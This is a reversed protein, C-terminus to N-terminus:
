ANNALNNNESEQGYVNLKSLFDLATRYHQFAEEAEFSSIVQLSLEPYPILDEESIKNPLKDEDPFGLPEAYSPSSHLVSNRYKFLKDVRAILAKDNKLEPCFECAFAIKQRVSIRSYKTILIGFFRRIEENKIFLIPASIFLNLGAEIAAASFVSAVLAHNCKAEWFTNKKSRSRKIYGLHRRAIGLLRRIKEHSIINFSKTM